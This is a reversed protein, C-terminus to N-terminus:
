RLGAAWLIMSLDAWVAADQHTFMVIQLGNNPMHAALRRYCEVM